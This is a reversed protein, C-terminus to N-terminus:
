PRKSIKGRLGEIALNKLEYLIDTIHVGQPCHDQCQYCGLCSWLMTSRFILDPLGLAAARIIQHPVLGLAHPPNKFNQFVPCASTCTMCTFCYVFSRGRSSEALKRKFERDMDKITISDGRGIPICENDIAERIAKLPKPFQDESIEDRKLGRYFSLPTLTLLEPYGKQLLEERMNFWLDQLNIGAPCAETCHTCNTCLFLGELLSGIEMESLKKGATLKIISPIKESPLININSIIEEVVAVVCRRNCTCCHTCADLEMIQRTAINAPDSKEKDMVANSLLSLPTAIIHFMKSFPLYALGIFCALFHVYWLIHQSNIKDLGPAFSKAARSVGYSLFAWQPRSHCAACNTEHLEEGLSLITRDFPGKLNPSAIGFEKIWFSTLAKAEKEDELDGYEEVMTQYSTYSVIKVSELLLGSIMIVALIILSYHDMASSFLRPARSFFRRYVAVSMGFLVVALSLNRLFLFPNLTPSYDPFLKSTILGELAHMILLLMFGGFIGMHMLWRPVSERLIRTQLLVDLTFVRALILIKKSFLTLFIGKAAAMVRRSTPIKAAEIGLSYRFWTSIKYFLGIGFIALAIYIAISFFMYIVKDCSIKVPDRDLPRPIRVLRLEGYEWM